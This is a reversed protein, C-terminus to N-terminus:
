PNAGEKEAEANEILDPETLDLVDSKGEAVNKARALEHAVVLHDAFDRLNNYTKLCDELGAFEKRRVLQLAAVATPNLLQGDAEWQLSSGCRICIQRLQYGLRAPVDGALFLDRLLKLRGSFDPGWKGRIVMESGSRKNLLLCLANKDPLAKARKEAERALDLADHMPQSHHVIAVGISFRVDPLAGSLCTTFLKRIQELSDLLNPLPLFALVDDGGSYILEGDCAEVKSGVQRAFDDLARSFAQHAEPSALKNLTKGMDDGDGVLIAGYKPPSAPAVKLLTHLCTEIKEQQGDSNIGCGDLFYVTHKNKEDEEKGDNGDPNRLTKEYFLESPFQDNEKLAKNLHRPNAEWFADHLRQWAEPQNQKLAEQYPSLIVDAMSEFKRKGIRKLLGLADLQEGPRVLLRKALIRSNKKAQHFDGLVTERLGDLSSKLRSEGNWGPAAFFRSQKRAALLSEAQKLAGKYGTSDALPVYVGYFEGVDALQRSVLEQDSAVAKHRAFFETRLRDGQKKWFQDFERRLERLLSAAEVGDPLIALIKNAVVLSSDPQLETDPDKPAPFILCGPSAQHLRLAVAKSLESLLHSGNWLDRLKRASAIFEQVPGVSILVLRSSM